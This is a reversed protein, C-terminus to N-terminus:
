RWKALSVTIPSNVPSTQIESRQKGAEVDFGPVCRAMGEGQSGGCDPGRSKGVKHHFSM